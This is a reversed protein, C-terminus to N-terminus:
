SRKGALRKQRDKTNWALVTSVLLIAILLYVAPLWSAGDGKIWQMAAIVLVGGLNGALMMLGTAEGAHQEGAIEETMSLLLAYGPLFMFGLFGSVLLLAGMNGTTCLPYTLLLAVACCVILLPKRRRYRDSLAPIIAAGIMGCIILMGGVLGAQEADVGYPKLIPELWSTVGNFFGLALFAIICVLLLQRNRLLPLLDRWRVASVAQQQNGKPNPHAVLWFFFAALVTLGAFIIMAVQLNTATVLIPTAALAIAMGAFMGVTGLGTAMAQRDRPFWDAVLKTIGNMVYPQGIAIGIHGIVLFIFQQDFVRVCAFIAMLWGGLGVGFRYGRRDIIIGAHVSLLVYLLPFVMLLLNMSDESVHYREELTTILPAFNLWLLQSMGALLTFSLLVTWRNTITRGGQHDGRKM